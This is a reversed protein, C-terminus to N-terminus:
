GAGDDSAPLGPMLGALRLLAAAREKLKDDSVERITHTQTVDLKDGYTRPKLKAALWKRADVRLRNRAVAASDLALITDEGDHRVQVQAEDSIAVIEDSIKDAREERARAYMGTREPDASIWRLATMRSFGRQVCFEGIHSGDSIADCITDIAEEAGVDEVWATFPARPKAPVKPAKRKGQLAPKRTAAKNAATKAPTRTAM